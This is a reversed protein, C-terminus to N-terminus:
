PRIKTENIHSYFTWAEDVSAQIAATGDADLHKFRGQERLYTEVPKRRSKELLPRSPQSLKFNGDEIEFLAWVGTQVALRGLEISM